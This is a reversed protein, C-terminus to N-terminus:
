YCKPNALNLAKLFSWNLGWCSVALGFQLALLLVPSQLFYHSHISSAALIQQKHHPLQASIFLLSERQGDQHLNKGQSTTLQDYQWMTLKTRMELFFKTIELPVPLVSTTPMTLVSLYHHLWRHHIEKDSGRKIEPSSLTIGQHNENSKVGQNPLAARCFLSTTHGVVSSFTWKYIEFRAESPKQTWSLTEIAGTKCQSVRNMTVFEDGCRLAIKLMELSSTSLKKFSRELFFGFTHLPIQPM